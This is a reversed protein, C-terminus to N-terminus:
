NARVVRGRVPYKPDTYGPTSPHGPPVRADLFTEDDADLQHSLAGLYENWQELTRPGAAVAAVLDNALVWNVAWQGPTMGHEHARLAIERAIRLSEPRFETQMLRTDRRGARTDAAPESDPAYKGTLVGRALPSYPVVGIDHEQCAPLIEIEPMRNMANYYPQCVVPPPIGMARARLALSVIRYARFNSMGWHRIKGSELVEGLAELTEEQAVGYDDLHLYYIDITDVGLRGLSGDLGRRIWNKSMGGSGPQYGLKNGVKSALVWHERDSKILEGVLREAEGDNYNDATDIFNVGAEQASAIIRQAVDVDTRGGFMMTGLCLRSVRPGARGLQRYPMSEILM